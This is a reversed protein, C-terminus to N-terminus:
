LPLNYNKLLALPPHRVAHPWQQPSIHHHILAVSWRVVSHLTGCQTGCQMWVHRSFTHRHLSTQWVLIGSASLLLVDYNFM